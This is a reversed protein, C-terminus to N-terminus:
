ESSVALLDLPNPMAEPDDDLLDQEIAEKYRNLDLVKEDITGPMIPILVTVHRTQGNRYARDEAQRRQAANWPLSVPIVYNAATLTLGVGAARRLGIFVKVEPDQQFTDVAAQKKTSSQAGTYTVCRVGAAALEDALIPVIELYECFVIVKDEPAMAGLTEILWASKAREMLQRLAGVKVLPPMESDAVIHRYRRQDDAGMEVYQLQHSKGKLGKVVAKPRRLMWESLRDKLARRVEPSGAFQKAFESMPLEGIPHGTLRLLTHIESERNLVPTATLLFRRAINRALLFANRTRGSAPEKLYHAEDVLMVRFTVKKDNVAQVVAGLREYNVVIWEASEWNAEEGAIAARANPAITAIERTWNIRLSAPCIVLVVGEGEVLDAAVAAQRSKGLGMDDALLCGSLGLMWGTGHQQYDFLGYNTEIAKLAAASVPLRQLPTTVVSLVTGTQEVEIAAGSSEPISGGVGLSPRDEALGVSTEALVIETDHVYVYARAVGGRAALLELAGTTSLDLFWGTRAQLLKGGMVPLLQDLLADRKFVLVSGGGAVPFLQVDLGEAFLDPEPCEIAQKILAVTSSVTLVVGGPAETALRQAFTGNVATRPFVWMRGQAHWAGGNDRFFDTLWPAYVTQLGLRFGDSHVGFIAERPAQRLDALSTM